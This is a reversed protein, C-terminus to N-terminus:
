KRRVSGRLRELARRLAAKMDGNRLSYIFPNLMPTVVTYMVTAMKDKDGSYSSLPRFYVGIASCYFLIVVTLHSACTQFAKSRGQASPLRLVTQVIFAYSILILIFNGIIITGGEFFSLMESLHKKACAMVVLPQFDCFFHPILRRGCFSVRSMLVTHMFSHLHALAWAVFVMLHCRVPNMLLTYHLPQRIAVFRDLAMAGLLFNETIAFAIFFYMQALCSAYAINKRGVRLNHLMKPITTSTFCVDVFSLHSLFFYMPTSFLQADSRILLVILLNGSLNLLYLALFLAFLLGDQEPRTSLGLLLFDPRSTRNDLEMLKRHGSGKLRELARHFAAKMDGNRLSYIFPNLMPTVVTYMVTAFKGKDGSDGSYSSVPRFYVGISSGYILFVVTLHSACTQFAKSRGQASPLRLVTRVIFAYSVLILIFNGITFTGGGYISLMEGPHKKACAMVILPQFDCFFHHIHRRGCFSVRSMLVTQVFSHLHALASAMFVMLHCRVPNMLMSYHLPQRIAVFRDLAMTGLLFNETIAFAMFFYMQALCSAYAINKRGVRLNHLMKPITTSTFCVDVFSLHSLFFYMPTSFLQADFRVLLIILLNGSLNLLYLALFLAFLLGDQEPRTSFGLLLFDPHSTHNDSEM